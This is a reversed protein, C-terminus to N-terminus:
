REPTSTQSPSRLGFEIFAKIMGDGMIETEIGMWEFWALQREADKAEAAWTPTTEFSRDGIDLTITEAAPADQYGGAHHQTGRFCGDWGWVRFRRYGLRAFLGMATLTISVASSVQRRGSAPYDDIHWVKVDRDKLRDFVSPHCKSAVLYCTGAPAEALFDAVMAQPDCAAWYTPALGQATFLGLAGNLAVSIDMGGIPAEAASPGNAVIDITPLDAGDAEPLNRILALQVQAEVIAHTLPTKIAFEILPEGAVAPAADLAM